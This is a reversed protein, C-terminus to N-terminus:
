FITIYRGLYRIVFKFIHVTFCIKLVDTLDLLEFNYINDFLTLSSEIFNLYKALKLMYRGLFHIFLFIRRVFLLLICIILTMNDDPLHAISSQWESWQEGAGRYIPCQRNQLLFILDAPISVETRSGGREFKQGSKSTSEEWDRPERGTLCGGGLEQVM